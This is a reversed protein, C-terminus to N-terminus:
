NLKEYLAFLKSAKLMQTLKWKEVNTMIRYRYQQVLVKSLWAVPVLLLAGLVFAGLTLTHHLHLLQLTETEALWTLLTDNQAYQWTLQELPYAFLLMLGETLGWVLIFTTLNITLLCVLLVILLTLLGFPLIGVFLGLAIAWGIQWPSAESNLVKLVKALLPLM